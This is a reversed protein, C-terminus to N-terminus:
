CYTRCRCHNCFNEEHRNNHAKFELINQHDDLLVYLALLMTTNNCLNIENNQSFIGLGLMAPLLLDKKIM